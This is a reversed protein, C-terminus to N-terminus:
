RGPRCASPPSCRACPPSGGRRGGPDAAASRPPACLPGGVPGVCSETRSRRSTSLWANWRCSPAGFPALSDLPPNSIHHTGLEGTSVGLADNGRECALLVPHDRPPLEQVSADGGPLYPESECAPAQMLNVAADVEHAVGHPRWEGRLLSRQEGTALPLVSDGFRRSDRPGAAKGLRVHPRDATAPRRRPPQARRSPRVSPGFRM